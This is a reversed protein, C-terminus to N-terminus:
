SKWNKLFILAAKVLYIPRTKLIMAFRLEFVLNEYDMQISRYPAKEFKFFHQLFGTVLGAFAEVAGYSMGTLAANGLGFKGVVGTEKIAIKQSLYSLTKELAERIRTFTNRMELFKKMVSDQTEEKPKEEKKKTKDKEKKELPIRITIHLIKLKVILNKESVSLIVLFNSFLILGLLLLLFLLIYLIVFLVTMM